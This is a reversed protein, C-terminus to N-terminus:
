EPRQDLMKTRAIAGVVYQNTVFDFGPVTDTFIPGDKSGYGEKIVKAHSLIEFLQAAYKAPVVLNEEYTLKLRLWNAEDEM